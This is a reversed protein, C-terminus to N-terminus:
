KKQIFRISEYYIRRQPAQPLSSCEACLAAIQESYILLYNKATYVSMRVFIIDYKLYCILLTVYLPNFWPTAKYIMLVFHQMDDIGFSNCIVLVFHQMDDIGFSNCIVLESPIAYWWCSTNYIMLGCTSVRQRTILYLPPKFAARSSIRRVEYTSSIGLRRSPYFLIRSKVNLLYLYM